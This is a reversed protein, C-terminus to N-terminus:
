KTDLIICMLIKTETDAKMGLMKTTKWLEELSTSNYYRLIAWSWKVNKKLQKCNDECQRHIYFMHM